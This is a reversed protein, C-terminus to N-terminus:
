DGDVREVKRPVKSILEQRGANIKKEPTNTRRNCDDEDYIM